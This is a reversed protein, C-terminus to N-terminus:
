RLSKGALMHFHLHFVEQGGGAGVHVKTWFGTSSHGEKKAIKIISEGIKALIHSNGSDIDDLRAIHIKPIFLYHTEHSPAIDKFALVDEDEYVKSCALDGAVIKCFICGESSM